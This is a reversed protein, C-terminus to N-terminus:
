QHQVYHIFLLVIIRMWTHEIRATLLFLMMLLLVRFRFGIVYFKNPLQSVFGFVRCCCCLSSPWFRCGWWDCLVKKFRVHISCSRLWNWHRFGKGYGRQSSCCFLMVIHDQFSTRWDQSHLLWISFSSRRAFRSSAWMIRWISPLLLVVILTLVSFSVESIADGDLLNCVMERIDPIYILEVLASPPSDVCTGM